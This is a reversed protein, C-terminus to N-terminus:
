LRPKSHTDKVCIVGRQTENPNGGRCHCGYSYGYNHNVFTLYCQESTSVWTCYDVWCVGDWGAGNSCDYNGSWQAMPVDFGQGNWATDVWRIQNPVVTKGGYSFYENPNAPHWGAACAQAIEHGYWSGNCAVMVNAQFIQDESGDACGVTIESQCNEDCGDGPTQNGDDCQEGAEAIDNGCCNEIVPYSCGTAPECENETCPDSDDCQVEVGACTSDECVDNDTCANGDNCQEQNPLQQCGQGPVCSDDTCVNGDNCNLEGSGVCQGEVCEDTTTCPDDDDCPNTNNEYVGGLELDCSGTTCVNGNDCVVGTGPKCSGQSCADDETCPNFDNCPSNNFSYVCGQEKDCVQDTCPNNDECNLTAKGKCIGGLCQDGTSCADGDDCPNSNLQHVCGLSPECYDTTCVNEDDCDVAGEGVCKGDACHGGTTCPNGDDCDDVQNPTFVCGKGKECADDTCSNLDDCSMAKGAMCTGGLCADDM